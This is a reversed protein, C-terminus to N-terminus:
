CGGFDSPPASAAARRSAQQVRIVLIENLMVGAVREVEEDSRGALIMREALVLAGRADGPAESARDGPGLQQPTSVTM